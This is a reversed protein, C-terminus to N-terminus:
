IIYNLSPCQGSFLALVPVPTAAAPVAPIGAMQFAALVPWYRWYVALIKCTLCLSTNLQKSATRHAACGYHKYPSERGAKCMAPECDTGLTVVQSDSLGRKAVLDQVKRSLEEGSNGGYSKKIDIPLILMDWDETILQLTLSLYTDGGCSTWSDVTIAVHEDELIEKIIVSHEDAINRLKEKLGRRNTLRQSKNYSNLFDRFYENEILCLPQHTMVLFKCLPTEWAPPAAKYHQSMKTQGKEGGAKAQASSEAGGKFERLIALYQSL